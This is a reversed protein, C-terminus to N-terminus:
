ATPTVRLRTQLWARATTWERRVKATSTKLVAATEEVSLGAFFRLEVIRALEPDWRGLDELAEDVALIDLRSPVAIDLSADLTIATTGSRRKAANRKRAHDVLVRRMIQAAVAFFQTRSEWPNRQSRLRVFCEHVLATPQLTCAQDGRMLDAALRRLDQYLVVALQATTYPEPENPVSSREGDEEVYRAAM